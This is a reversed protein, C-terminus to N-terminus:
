GIPPDLDRGFPLSSNPNFETPPTYPKVFNNVPDFPIIEKEEEEEGYFGDDPLNDEARNYKRGSSNIKYKYTKEYLSEYIVSRIQTKAEASEASIVNLDEEFFFHIVDLM